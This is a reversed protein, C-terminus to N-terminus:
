VHAALYAHLARNFDDPRELNPLHGAGEIVVLRSGPIRRQMEESVSVPTVRDESGVMILTPLRIGALLATSDPRSMMAALAGVIAPPPNAEILTRVRAVVDPADALTRESLLKPIMEDAIAAIGDRQAREQMRRRNERTEETDPQPRTDALILARLRSPDRRLLAFVVYGGLSLGGVVAHDIKLADLLDVVDGALDDMSVRNSDDHPADIGQPGAPGRFGRLHPAIIRWGGPAKALQAQWMDASLPFGHVLVLPDGRGAELFSHTRGGIRVDRRTVSRM